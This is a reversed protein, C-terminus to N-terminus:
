ARELDLRFFQNHPSRRYAAFAACSKFGASQYLSIAPTHMAATGTELSLRRYDRARAEAIVHELLARGVGTGRAEPAARMSKLEGHGDDLQKLAAFGLLMENRWATWFTVGPASLGTADLATAHGHMAEQLETLHYSLLHSVHCALPDDQRILM